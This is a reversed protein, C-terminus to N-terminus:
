QVTEFLKPISVGGTAQDDIIWQYIFEHSISIRGSTRRSLYNAVQEPSWGSSM